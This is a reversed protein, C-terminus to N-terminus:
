RTPPSSWRSCRRSWPSCARGSTACRPSSAPWAWSRGLVDATRGPARRVVAALLLLLALGEGLGWVHPPRPGAILLASGTLSILAATAARATLPIRTGPVTCLCVALATAGMVAHPRAPQHSMAVAELGALLLLLVAPGAATALRRPPRGPPQGPRPSM